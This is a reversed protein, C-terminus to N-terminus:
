FDRLRLIHIHHPPSSTLGQGRFFPPPPVHHRPRAGGPPSPKHPPAPRATDVITLTNPVTNYFPTHPIPDTKPACHERRGHSARRVTVRSCPSGSILRPTPHKGSRRRWSFRPRKRFKELNNKKDSMVISIIETRLLHSLPTPLERKLSRSTDSIYRRLIIGPVNYSAATQKGKNVLTVPM